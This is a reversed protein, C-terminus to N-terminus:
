YKVSCGYPKQRGYPATGDRTVQELVAETHNTFAAGRSDGRPANDLAGNYVLVGDPNIVVIQPTTKAEFQRGVDGSEDLLVPGPISWDAKAKANREKGTGQKGPAGSNVAAWVVGQETWHKALKPIPGEEYAYKVFPCDPNFWELVVTKGKQASLTFPEGGVSPLTFDPAPQGVVAVSPDAAHVSPSSWPTCAALGLAFVCARFMSM